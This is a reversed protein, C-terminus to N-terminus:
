EFGSIPWFNFIPGYKLGNTLGNKVNSGKVPSNFRQDNKKGRYLNHKIIDNINTKRKLM